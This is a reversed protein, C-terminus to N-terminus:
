FWDMSWPAPGAFLSSLLSVVRDDPELLGLRVADAPALYGSFMASLTGISVPRPAANTHSVKVSGNQATIEWAGTNEAFLPDEVGLICTGTVPPYGRAELAGRVELVRLMWRFAFTPKLTQETLEALVPEAPPGPFVLNVGIGRFGRFYALLSRLAEPTTWVMQRCDVDFALDLTAPPADRYTFAAYGEIGNLGRAVVARFMAKPDRPFLVRQTWWSDHSGEVAGNQTPAVSRYCDRIQAWADAPDVEEVALTGRSPLDELPVAHDTYTGAVQYGLARYPALVAPFLMSVPIGEERARLLGHAVVQSMLGQGRREPVTAVGWIGAMRMEKGGFWQVMDKVASTAVISDGEFAADFEDLPLLPARHELFSADAYLAVKFLDAIQGREDEVPTRVDTSM